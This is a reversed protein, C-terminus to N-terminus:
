RGRLKSFMGGLADALGALDHISAGDKVPKLPVAHPNPGVIPKKPRLGYIVLNHVEAVMRMTLVSNAHTEEILRLLHQGLDTIPKGTPEDADM